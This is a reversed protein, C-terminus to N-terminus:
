LRDKNKIAIFIEPTIWPNKAVKYQKRSLRKKPFFQNTLDSLTTLLINIDCSNLM